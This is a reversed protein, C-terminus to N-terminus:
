WPILDINAPTNNGYLGYYVFRIVVSVGVMFLNGAILGIFLPKLRRYVSGGGFKVILMKVFWGVLFSYWMLQSSYSGAVVLLVPHLPFRTFRFRLFSLALMAALGGAFFKVDMAKSTSFALRRVPAVVWQALAGGGGGAGLSKEYTGTQKMESFCMAASNLPPGPSSWFIWDKSMPNFNYQTYFSVAFSIALAVVVTVCCLWFLKRLKVGTDDAVKAATAVYPMLSERPDAAIIKTGWLLFVLPRPGMAAPGFFKVLLDAPNLGLRIFPIGVECLIRSITLYMSVLVVCYVAAMLWSGCLWAIMAWFALAALIFMRAALVAAYEDGPTENERRKRFGAARAFVTKYYNRGTFILIACFGMCAGFRSSDTYSTSLETGTSYYFVVAVVAMLITSLGMSLGAEASIFYSLGVIFFVL